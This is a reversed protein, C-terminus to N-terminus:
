SCLVEGASLGSNYYLSGIIIAALLFPFGGVVSITILTTAASLGNVVSRGYNDALSSDIGEMDKGFRNLLAGRSTKDHFRINAFLV